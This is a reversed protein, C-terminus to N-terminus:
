KIESRCAIVFIGWRRDSEICYEFCLFIRTKCYLTRCTSFNAIYKTRVETEIINSVDRNVVLYIFCFVKIVFNSMGRIVGCFCITRIRGFYYLVIRSGVFDCCKIRTSGNDFEGM